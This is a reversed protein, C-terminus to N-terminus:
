ARFKFVTTNFVTTNRFDLQPFFLQKGRFPLAGPNIRGGPFEVTPEENSGSTRRPYLAASWSQHAKTVPSIRELNSCRDRSSLPFAGPNLPGGISFFLCRELISAGKYRPFHAGPKLM